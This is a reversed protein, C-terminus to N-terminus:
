ALLPFDLANISRWASAGASLLVASGNRATRGVVDVPEVDM